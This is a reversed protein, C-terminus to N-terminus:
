CAEPRSLQRHRPRHRLPRDHRDQLHVARDAGRQRDRHLRRDQGPDVSVVLGTGSTFESGNQKFEVTITYTSTQSSNNKVTGTVQPFGNPTSTCTWDVLDDQPPHETNFSNSQIGTRNEVKQQAKLKDNVTDVGKKVVFVLLVVLAIGLVAIIAGVILVAKLCGNGKKDPATAVAGAVPPAGYGGAPPTMMPPPAAPPVGPAMPPPAYTPPPTYAPPPTVPIPETPPETSLPPTEPAM